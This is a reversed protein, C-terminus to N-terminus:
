HFINQKPCMHLDNKHCISCNKEKLHCFLFLCNNRKKFCSYRCLLQNLLLDFQLSANTSKNKEM